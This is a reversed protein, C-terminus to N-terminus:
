ARPVVACAPGAPACFPCAARPKRLDVVLLGSGKCFSCPPRRPASDREPDQREDDEPQAHGMLRALDSPSIGTRAQWLAYTHRLDHPVRPLIRAARCAAALEPVMAPWAPLLKGGAHQEVFPRLEEALPVYRDPGAKGGRIRVLCALADVDYLQLAELESRRAGTRVAFSVFIQREPPLEVLLRPYEDRCLPHPPRTAPRAQSFLTKAM